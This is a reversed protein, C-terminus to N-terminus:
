SADAKKLGVRCCDLLSPNENIEGLVEAVKNELREGESEM